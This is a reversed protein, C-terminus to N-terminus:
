GKPLIAPMFGWNGFQQGTHLIKNAETQKYVNHYNRDVTDWQSVYEISEKLIYLSPVLSKNSVFLYYSITPM